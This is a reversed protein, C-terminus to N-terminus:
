RADITSLLTDTYEAEGDGVRYEVRGSLEVPGSTNLPIGVTYTFRYDFPPPQIWVFELMGEEGQPPRIAPLLGFPSDAAIYVWNPPLTEVLAMASINADEQIDIEVTIEFTGGPTYTSLHERTLVVTDVPDPSPNPTPDPNPDPNGSGTPCGALTGALAMAAFAIVTRCGRRLM